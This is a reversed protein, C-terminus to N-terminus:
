NNKKAIFFYGGHFAGLVNNQEIFDFRDLRSILNIILFPIVALHRIGYPFSKIITLCSDMIFSFIGGTIHFSEISYNRKKLEHEWKSKTWRQFDNPDGHVRYLFPMSCIFLGNPKLVRACEDLGSEINLVHEFLEIANIVDISESSVSSMDSVDLLIDPKYEPNIDAYIWREVDQKPKVFMGRDRGGIDLVIGKYLDIYKGQLFDLRKRQNSAWVFHSIINLM